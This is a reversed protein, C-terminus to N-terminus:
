THEIVKIGTQRIVERCISCPAANAPTGDKLYRMVVLKYAESWDKIKVLAAIEAHLYICSPRGVKSAAKAQVTHTKKYDNRGIALLRGNKHYVFATVIHKGM